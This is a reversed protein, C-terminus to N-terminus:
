KLDEPRVGYGLLVHQEWPEPVYSGDPRSVIFSWKHVLIVTTVQHAPTSKMRAIYRAADSLLADNDDRVLSDAFKRYREEFVKETLGLHEMRPFMWSNRSGDKYVVIAEIYTNAGKPIPAFMDWSQFLGSWLFYPRVLNKGLMILPSDLPMCWCAIALIHFVLFINVILYKLPRLRSDKRQLGDHQTPGRSSPAPECGATLRVGLASNAERSNM